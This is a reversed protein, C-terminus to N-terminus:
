KSKETGTMAGKTRGSARTSVIALVLVSHARKCRVGLETNSGEFMEAPAGAVESYYLIDKRLKEPVNNAYIIKAVDGRRLARLTANLGYVISGSEVAASLEKTSTKTAM